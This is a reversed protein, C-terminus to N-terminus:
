SVFLCSADLVRWLKCLKMEVCESSVSLKSKVRQKCYCMSKIYGNEFSFEATEESSHTKTNVTNVVAVLFHLTLHIMPGRTFLFTLADKGAEPAFLICLPMFHPHVALNQIVGCQSMTPM